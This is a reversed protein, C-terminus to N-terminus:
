HSPFSLKEKKSVITQTQTKNLFQNLNDLKRQLNKHEKEAIRYSNEQEKKKSYLANYKNQLKEIDLTKLNIGARKLMHEAGDHLLLETEHRHLYAEKNKSKQYRIHYIHNATYQETYKIIEGLDKLQRETELLTKRTSKLM